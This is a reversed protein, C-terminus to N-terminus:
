EEVRKILDFINRAIEKPTSNKKLFNGGYLEIRQSGPIFLHQFMDFSIDFFYLTSSVSNKNEDKNWYPNANGDTKWDAFLFPLERMPYNFYPLTEEIYDGKDAITPEESIPKVTTLLLGSNLHLALTKLRDIYIKEM